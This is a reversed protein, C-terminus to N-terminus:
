PFYIISLEQLNKHANSKRQTDVTKYHLINMSIFDILLDWDM